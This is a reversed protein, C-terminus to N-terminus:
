NDNKEGALYYWDDWKSVEQHWRLYGKSTLLNYIAERKNKEGADEITILKIKYNKFDFSHLIIYESGETDISLYDIIKPANAEVLLDNLSITKAQIIKSKLRNGNSEHIDNPIIQNIRSLEPISTALFDIKMNSKSYVCKKSIYANKRQNLKEHWFINPEALIGNWGYENELLLTNSLLHGDCAGFEVFYGNHVENTMYLVWLDQLLQAYSRHRNLFAFSFFAMIDDFDGLESSSQNIYHWMVNSLFQKEMNSINHSKNQYLKNIATLSTGVFWKEKFISKDM